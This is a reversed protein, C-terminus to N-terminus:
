HVIIEAPSCSEGGQSNLPHNSSIKQYWDHFYQHDASAAPFYEELPVLLHAPYLPYALYLLPDAEGEALTWSLAGVLFGVYCQGVLYNADPVAAEEATEGVAGVLM